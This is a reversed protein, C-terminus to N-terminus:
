EVDEGANRVVDPTDEATRKMQLLGRAAVDIAIKLDANDDFMARNITSQKGYGRGKYTKLVVKKPSVKARVGSPLREKIQTELRDDVIM